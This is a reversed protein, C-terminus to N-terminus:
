AVERETRSARIAAALDRELQRAVEWGDPANELEPTMRSPRYLGTDCADDYLREADTRPTSDLKPDTM